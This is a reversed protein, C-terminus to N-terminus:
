LNKPYEYGTTEEIMKIPRVEIKATDGYEFEPNGKAIAIAEEQDKAFIHYYGVIIEKNEDFPEEKWENKIGSIIKGQRVLPQAEKLKGAKKLEQIYKECDKLFKHHKEETWTSQHDGKNHIILMFEKMILIEM